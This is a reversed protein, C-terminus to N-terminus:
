HMKRATKKEAQIMIRNTEYIGESSRISIDSKAKVKILTIILYQHKRSKRM